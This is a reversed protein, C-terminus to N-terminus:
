KILKKIYAIKKSDNDIINSKKNESIIIDSPIIAEKGSTNKQVELTARDDYINLRYFTKNEIFNVERKRTGGLYKIKRCLTGFTNSDIVENLVIVKKNGIKKYLVLVYSMDNLNGRTYVVCQYQDSDMDFYHETVYLGDMQNYREFDSNDIDIDYETMITEDKENILNDILDTIIKTEEELSVESSVLKLNHHNAWAMSTKKDLMAAEEVGESRAKNSLNYAEPKCTALSLLDIVMDYGDLVDLESLCFSDLMKNFDDHSNLYAINDFIGRDYIIVCKDYNSLNNLAYDITDREKGLQRKMVMTQFNYIDPINQYILNPLLETATEPVILCPIGKSWLYEKVASVATTKGACPGGTLVIKFIKM